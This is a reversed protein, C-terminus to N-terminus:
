KKFRGEKKKKKNDDKKIVEKKDKDNNSRLTKVLKYIDYGIIMIAPVVIIAVWGLISSLYYQVYGIKPIRFLVRGYIEDFSIRSSDQTNNNDGKTTYLYEGNTTKEIDIIRHTVLVGSYRYDTSNFTIIDDKKLDEPNNVRMTVVVDLVNISPVMSPSVITYASFLDKANKGSKLNYQKDIFNIVFVLFVIIMILCLSYMLVTAIFHLANRLKILWEKNNKKMLNDGM